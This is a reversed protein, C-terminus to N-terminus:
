DAAHWHPLPKLLDLHEPAHTAIREITRRIWGRDMERATELRAIRRRSESVAKELDDIRKGDEQAEARYQRVEDVLEAYAATTKSEINTRRSARGAIIAAIGAGVAGIGAVIWEPM